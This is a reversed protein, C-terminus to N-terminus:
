GKYRVYIGFNLSLGSIHPFPHSPDVTLPKLVPFIKEDFFENLEIRESDSLEQYHSIQIGHKELNPLIEEFYVHEVRKSLLNVQRSVARLTQSNSLESDHDHEFGLEIRRLLSAVRVMFFEDLNSHFISLFRARELLPLENSEALQLVRSNFELWSLERNTIQLGAKM